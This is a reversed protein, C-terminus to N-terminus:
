LTELRLQGTMVRNQVRHAILHRLGLRSSSVRRRGNRCSRTGCHARGNVLLRSGGSGLVEPANQLKTLFRKRLDESKSLSLYDNTHFDVLGADADPDALRRRILREDRSKLAAALKAELPSM